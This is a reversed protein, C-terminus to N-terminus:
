TREEGPHGQRVTGDTCSIEEQGLRRVGHQPYAPQKFFLRLEAARSSCGSCLQLSSRRRRGTVRSIENRGACCVAEGQM